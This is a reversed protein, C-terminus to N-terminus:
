FFILANYIDWISINEKQPLESHSFYDSSHQNNHIEYQMSVFCAAPLNGFLAKYTESSSFTFHLENYILFQRVFIEQHKKKLYFM